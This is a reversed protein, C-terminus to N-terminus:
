VETVVGHILRLNRTKNLVREMENLVPVSKTIGMINVGILDALSVANLGPMDKGIVMLSGRSLCNVLLTYESLADIKKNNKRNQIAKKHANKYRDVACKEAEKIKSNHIGVIVKDSLISSYVEQKGEESLTKFLKLCLENYSVGPFLKSAVEKFSDPMEPSNMLDKVVKGDEYNWYITDGEDSLRICNRGMLCDLLEKKYKVGLGRIKSLCLDNLDESFVEAKRFYRKLCNRAGVSLDLDDILVFDECM